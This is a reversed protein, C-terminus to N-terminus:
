SKEKKEKKEKKEAKEADKKEKKEKKEAEKKEKKEKKEKEKSEKPSTAGSGGDNTDGSELSSNALETTINHEVPYEPNQKLYEDLNFSYDLDGGLDKELYKFDVYEELEPFIRRGDKDKKSYIFKVKSLTVENLFPKIIKWAIWFMTPPDLFLSQGMREPCHDLLFHMSELNTKMDINKRSFGNYDVIFCFQEIGKSEDMKSFGKQMWYVLNKFKDEGPVDKLTDNRPVAFIIPRGKKDRNNVYLCGANAIERIDNLRIDQPRNKKKWELSNRLMAESKSVNYNRARLYRLFCMDTLFAIDESDNYDALVNSKIEQFAEMQKENLDKFPDFNPFSKIFDENSKSNDIEGNTIIEDATSTTTNTINSEVEM